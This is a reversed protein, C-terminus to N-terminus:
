VDVELLPVAQVCETVPYSQPARCIVSMKKVGKGLDEAVKVLSQVDKVSPHENFKAELLDFLGGRHILFDAELGRLNRWFWMDWKGYKVTQAKRLEAFVFTEWISGILPSRMLEDRSNIGLFYCLLGSDSLYLKPSKILSKTKNQFWPELLTIQNSAQLVSLWQNATPQSIGIDRALDAKNLPHGSRLACARLFREFDRLHTVQLLARLDRELYTAVYSQYFTAADLEPRQHLEPFGGRLILSELAVHGGQLVEPQSLTELELVACRGALSESVNQMLTFKQSGTLLFQGYCQRNQDIWIKLHRFLAPAYQVEDIIVPPPYRKIFEQPQKEALEANSPLDLSVFHYQPFLTKLLTTKGVQRAGTLICAPYASVLQSLKKSIERQYWM